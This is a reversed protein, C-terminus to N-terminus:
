NDRISNYVIPAIFRALPVIICILLIIRIDSWGALASLDAGVSPRILKTIEM